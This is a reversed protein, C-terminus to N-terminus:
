LAMTGTFVAKAPGALRINMLRGGAEDFEVRLTHGSRPVVTIPSRMNWLLSGILASAVSGTGCALTEAEVGREYTRIKLSNGKGKDVFNVNTGKPAFEDNYRVARGLNVVDLEDLPRCDGTLNGIPIVVHPSGTDVSNVLVKQSSLVIEQHLRLDRPNMMTLVVENKRVEADYIHGLAEFSHKRPALKHLFAYWAICRGGNGCMGGYSGDANYYMMRYKALRSKEILLLGDAGIGWRRDCLIRAAKSGNKIRKSRNDIVVFDNGAGTMKTFTTKMRPTRTVKNTPTGLIASYDLSALTQLTNSILGMSVSGIYSHFEPPLWVLEPMETASVRLFAVSGSM